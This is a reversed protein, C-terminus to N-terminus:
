THACYAAAYAMASRNRLVPRFDFLAGSAAPGPRRERAPAWVFVILWGVMAAVAAAAFAGRWGLWRGITGAFVFSIAGAIGISAAHGAVARSMLVAEVRVALLKLGTMYTGAWGVGALARAAAAGGPGPVWPCRENADDCVTILYDGGESAVDAYLKSAHAGLDVGREAMVRIALPNVSTKETGARGAEFRDGALGRLFSEAMQSRASNHTCLFLVRPRGM